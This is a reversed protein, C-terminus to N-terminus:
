YTGVNIHYIDYKYENSQQYIIFRKIILKCWLFYYVNKISISM